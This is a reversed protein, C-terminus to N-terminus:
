LIKIKSINPIAQLTLDNYSQWSQFNPNKTHMKKALAIEEGEGGKRRKEREGRRRRGWGGGGEVEEGGGGKTRCNSELRSKLPLSDWEDPAM